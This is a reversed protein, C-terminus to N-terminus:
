LRDLISAIRDVQRDLRADGGYVYPLDVVYAIDAESHEGLLAYVMVRGPRTATLPLNDYVALVDEDEHKFLLRTGDALTRTTPELTDM